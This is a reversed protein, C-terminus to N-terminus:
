GNTVSQKLHQLREELDHLMELGFLPLEQVAFIFEPRDMELLECDTLAVATGFRRHERDVLAGVGFCSGAGITERLVGGWSLEVTGRVVGFLQDGYDGAGFIVEGAKMEITPRNQSLAAITTLETSTM